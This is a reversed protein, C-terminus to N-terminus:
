GAPRTEPSTASSSSCVRLAAELRTECAMASRSRNRALSIWYSDLGLRMIARSQDAANASNMALGKTWVMIRGSPAVVASSSM